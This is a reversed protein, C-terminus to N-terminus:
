HGLRQSELTKANICDNKAAICISLTTFAYIFSLKHDHLKKYGLNIVYVFEIQLLHPRITLTWYLTQILTETHQWATEDHCIM